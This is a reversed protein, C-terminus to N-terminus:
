ARDSGGCRLKRDGLPCREVEVSGMGWSGVCRSSRWGSTAEVARVRSMSDLVLELSEQTSALLQNVEASM